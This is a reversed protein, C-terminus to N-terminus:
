YRKDMIIVLLYAKDATRRTVLPGEQVTTMVWLREPHLPKRDPKMCTHEAVENTLFTVVSM